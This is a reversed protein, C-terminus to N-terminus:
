GGVGSLQKSFTWDFFDILFLKKRTPSWICNHIGADGAMFGLDGARDLEKQYLNRLAEFKDRPLENRQDELSEGDIYEMVFSFSDGGIGYPIRFMGEPKAVSINDEYMALHIIPEQEYKEIVNDLELVELARFSQRPIKAIHNESIRYIKWHSSHKDILLPRHTQGPFHKLKKM